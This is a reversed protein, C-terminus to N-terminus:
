IVFFDASTLDLGKTLTAFVTAGGDASGNEDYTLAGTTADYVIRDNAHNAADGTTFAGDDLAGKPLASFVKHSLQITDHAPSFDKIVDHKDPTLKSRFRFTDDGSGGILKDPGNGGDLLDDGSGGKIRDHGGRGRLVDDGAFGRLVDFHSGGRITENGSHNVSFPTDYGAFLSMYETVATNYADQPIKEGGSNIFKEVEDAGVLHAGALLGSVTIAMGGLTQGEYKWVSKLYSWQLEMYARIASEQVDRDSLFDAESHIGNKGTWYASQWDNVSTQDPQYYGIDILALEGFQYKGLFGLTNVVGYDGSSERDGLADFFDDYTLAAL